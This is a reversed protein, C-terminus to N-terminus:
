PVRAEPEGDADSASRQLVARASRDSHGRRSPGALLHAWEAALPLFCLAATRRPPKM